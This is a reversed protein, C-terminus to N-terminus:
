EEDVEALADVVVEEGMAPKASPAAPAPKPKEAPGVLAHQVLTDVIRPDLRVFLQRVITENLHCQRTLPDLQKSDLQFYTLWYTGKKHSGIPYALRREEWLRSALVRGGFQKILEPIQESVGAPNRAYQNSDLIFLGEYANEAM